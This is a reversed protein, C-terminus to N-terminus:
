LRMAIWRNAHEDSLVAVTPSLYEVVEMLEDESPVDDLHNEVDLSSLTLQTPHFSYVGLGHREITGYRELEDWYRTNQYNGGDLKDGAHLKRWAASLLATYTGYGVGAERLVIPASQMVTFQKGDPYHRALSRALRGMYAYGGLEAM